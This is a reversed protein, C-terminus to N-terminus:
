TLQDLRHKSLQQIVEVGFQGDESQVGEQDILGGDDEFQIRLLDLEDVHQDENQSQHDGEVREEEGKMASSEGLCPGSQLILHPCIVGLIVEEVHTPLPEHISSLTLSSVWESLM